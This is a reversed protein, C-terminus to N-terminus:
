AQTLVLIESPLLPSMSYPSAPLMDNSIHPASSSSSFPNWGYLVFVVSFLNGTLSIMLVVLLALITFSPCSRQRLAYDPSEAFM